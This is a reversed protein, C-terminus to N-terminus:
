IIQISCDGEKLVIYIMGQEKTAIDVYNKM